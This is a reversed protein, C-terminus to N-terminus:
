ESLITVKSVKYDIDDMLEKDLVINLTVTKDILTSLPQNTPLLFQGIEVTINQNNVEFIFEGEKDNEDMDIQGIIKGTIVAIDNNNLKNLETITQVTNTTASLPLTAFTALIALMMTYNILKKMMFLM